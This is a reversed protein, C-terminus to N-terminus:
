WDDPQNTQEGEKMTSLLSGHRVAEARSVQMFAVAYSPICAGNNAQAWM